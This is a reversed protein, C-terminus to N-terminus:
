LNEGHFVYGGVSPTLIRSNVFATLVEPQRKHGVGQAKCLERIDISSIHTATPQARHWEKLAVIVKEQNRGRGRASPPPADATVLALSTVAEGYRDKRGLDIVKAEYALPPMAPADKFRERSVTVMMGRMDPRCVIYEADPNSMLSSAGRPRQAEGHGSHAVLLVTCGLDERLYASLNSLFAAVEGNDNEDMGTSFKSLTDIVIFDPAAPLQEIAECLAALEAALTLNLPRELAVLPVEKLDLDRRHMGTWAAIRRDLGAGEGSLMVGAHGDLAMRMSWDLAVFSKFTGRPGAIVALVNQEIVRHILWEPERKEAVIEHIHRLVIPRKAGRKEEEPPADVPPPEQPPAPARRTEGYKRVASDAMPRARTRLDIGDGNHSGTGLLELLTNEIDDASLGKAAWRSSLKLMAQYRDEGREFAARLDADTTPDRQAAGNAGPKIPYLPLLDSANDVTRGAIERVEYSAGRVRGIYFSQSLTFSENSVVGGLARNGRGVYEARKEPIAPECFPLLARWRPKETTHSPSTYLIARLNAAGLLEAATDIPMKEGDYDLEVGYVRQVNEEYRLCKHDADIEDGYEAMSILPCDSKKLYTAANKIRATLDEWPVDERVTKEKPWVNPFLTYTVLLQDAQTLVANM